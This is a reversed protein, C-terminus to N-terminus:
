KFMNKFSNIGESANFTIIDSDVNFTIFNMGLNLLDKIEENNQPVFGGVRKGSELVKKVVDKILLLLKEDKVKGPIGLDQSLDYAGFYVVDIEDITLIEDINNIGEMDEIIIGAIVSENSRSAHSDNMRNTFKGAKSFPTYGRKGEPFYKIYSIYDLVDKKSKVGPIIVGEAGQDLVQLIMWSEKSPVRVIPICNYIICANVYVHIESIVFPGHELDIIIFDFGCSALADTVMPSGLTNWTGIVPKDTKFKDM